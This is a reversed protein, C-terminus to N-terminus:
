TGELPREERFSECVEGGAGLQIEEYVEKLTMKEKM